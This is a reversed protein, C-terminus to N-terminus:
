SVLSGPTLGAIALTARSLGLTCKPPGGRAALYLVSAPLRWPIVQKTGTGHAEVFTVQEPGMEAQKLVSKYLKVQADLSPITLGKSLCGQNTATGVIVGMIRDGDLQAQKLAKRVVLGAGEARCYGDASKDFPKCQGTPSLFGARALDLFNNAGTILNIGGAVAMSCEGAQVAKVARNIAVLSSSCATDIVEALGSWGFYYSLRGCLFARITGASTYATPPYANTNDLYEIFSAGIFCGVSDGRSREHFRTYGSCEMAEYSLELLLRQQPDMNLMERTNIGFFANDFRDVGDVFNGYFERKQTFDSSQSGWFSGYLDFRDTRVQEHRDKGKSLLEWLEHM